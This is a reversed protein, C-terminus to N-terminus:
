AGGRLAQLADDVTAVQVVRLGAPIRAGRIDPCNDRPVLFVTAGQRRAAVLKEVVGGIPLVEGDLAIEGTGAIRRGGTLDEASLRDIIALTFILGASPGGINETEITVEVPPERFLDRLVVGVRPEGEVAGVQLHVASRTQDRQVRFDVRDGIQHMTIATRVQDTNTVARGDVALIRDGAELRGAAPTGAVVDDVEVGSPEISYGLERLAVVTATSKSNVMDAVNRRDVEDSTEGEPFVETRPRLQVDRNALDLLAEYFRVDDDIGVSTLYLRGKSDYVPTGGRVKVRTLVDEAPGPTLAVVPLRYFNLAFVVAVLAVVGASATVRQRV